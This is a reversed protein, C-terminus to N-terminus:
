IRQRGAFGAHIDHYYEIRPEPAKWCLYVEKGDRLSPFDVLGEPIGKLICGKSELNGMTSNLQLVCSLYDVGQISGGNWQVNDRAKKVDPFNRALSQLLKQLQPVDKLLLPVVANAEDVTFFRKKKSM